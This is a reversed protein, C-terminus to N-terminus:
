LAHRASEIDRVRSGLIEDAAEGVDVDEGFAGGGTAPLLAPDSGVHECDEVGVSRTRCAEHRIGHIADLRECPAVEVGAVLSTATAVQHRLDMSDNSSGTSPEGLSEAAFASQMTVGDALQDEVLPLDRQEPRDWVPAAPM